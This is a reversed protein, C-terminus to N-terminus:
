SAEKYERSVSGITRRYNATYVARAKKCRDCAPEGNRHHRIYAANTGCPQHQYERKKPEPKPKPAPKPAVPPEPETWPDAEGRQTGKYEYAM